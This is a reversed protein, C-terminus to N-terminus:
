NGLLKGLVFALLLCHACLLFLSFSFLHRNEGKLTNTQRTALDILPWWNPVLKHMGEQFHVYPWISGRYLLNAGLSRFVNLPCVFIPIKGQNITINTVKIPPHPLISYSCLYPHVLFLNIWGEWLNCEFQASASRDCHSWMKSFRGDWVCRLHGGYKRLLSNTV